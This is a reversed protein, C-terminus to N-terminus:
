FIIFLSVILIIIMVIITYGDLESSEKEYGPM